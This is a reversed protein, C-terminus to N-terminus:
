QRYLGQAAILQEVARPTRFRISRGAAVRHRLETSSLDITPMEVLHNRIVALRRADVLSALIALDPVPAGARSVVVPIALDCIRAPERWGPLDALADAGMLLFLEDGPHQRKLQDLTDVTYSVGGRDLELTQVRFATTGGTALQLMEVRWRGPTIDRDQKHPPTGAPVFWVEDLACQERCCEALLLHGYHVPDFSGGYVGIRM